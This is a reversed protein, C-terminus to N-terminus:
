PQTASVQLIPVECLHQLNFGLSHSAAYVSDSSEWIKPVIVHPQTSLEM